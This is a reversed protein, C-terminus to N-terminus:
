FPRRSRPRPWTATPPLQRPRRRALLKISLVLMNLLQILALAHEWWM